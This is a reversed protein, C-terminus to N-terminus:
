LPLMGIYASKYVTCEITVVAFIPSHTRGIIPKKNRSYKTFVSIQIHYPFRQIIFETICNRIFVLAEGMHDGLSILLSNIKRFNIDRQRGWILTRFVAYKFINISYFKQLM